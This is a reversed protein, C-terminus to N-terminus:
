IKFVIEMFMLNSFEFVTETETFNVVYVDLLTVNVM